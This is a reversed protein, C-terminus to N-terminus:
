LTNAVGSYLLKTNQGLLAAASVCVLAVLSALLCYEVITVGDEDQVFKWFREM